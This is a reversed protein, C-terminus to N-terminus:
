ILREGIGVIREVHESIVSLTSLVPRGSIDGVEGFCLEFTAEVSEHPEGRAARFVRYIEAGHVLPFQRDAPRLALPPFSVPEDVGPVTMSFRLVINRHAAGVILLSRHKDVIDLQHLSVLNDNGGSYPRLRRVFRLAAASAGRLAHTMTQELSAADKSFPFCTHKGPAGQNSSVFEWALHDLAARANHVVDGVVSGLEEPVASAIEVRYLLDGNPQETALLSFPQTAFYAAIAAQVEALHRRARAIKHRASNARSM